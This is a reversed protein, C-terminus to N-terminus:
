DHHVRRAQREGGGDCVALTPRPAYAFPHLFAERASRPEVAYRLPPEDPTRTDECRIWVCDTEPDWELAITLGDSSREDLQHHM